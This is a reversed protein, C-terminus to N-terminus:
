CNNFGAYKSLNASLFTDLDPTRDHIRKTKTLNCNDQTMLTVIITNPIAYVDVEKAGYALVMRRISEEVRYIEAGNELPM